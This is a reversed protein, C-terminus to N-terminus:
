AAEGAVPASREAAAEPAMAFSGPVIDTLPEEPEAAGLSDLADAISPFRSARGLIPQVIVQTPTRWLICRCCTSGTRYLSLVEEYVEDGFSHDMEVALRLDHFEAWAQILRLEAVAFSVGEPHGSM